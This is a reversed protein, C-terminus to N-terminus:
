RRNGALACVQRVLAILREPDAIEGTGYVLPEYFEFYLRSLSRILEFEERGTASDWALLDLFALASASEMILFSRDAITFSSLCKSIFERYTEFHGIEKRYHSVYSSLAHEFGTRVALLYQGRRVLQQLEELVGEDSPMSPKRRIDVHRQSARSIGYADKREM